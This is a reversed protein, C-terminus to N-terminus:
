SLPRPPVQPLPRDYGYLRRYQYCTHCRGRTPRVTLQGCHSCPRLTAATLPPRAPREAGHRRWHIACMQCRGHSLLHGPPDVRGCIRCTRPAM